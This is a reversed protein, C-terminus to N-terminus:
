ILDWNGLTQCDCDLNLFSRFRTQISDFQWMIATMTNYICIYTTGTATADIQERSATWHIEIWSQRRLFPGFYLVSLSSLLGSAEHYRERMIFSHAASLRGPTKRKLCFGSGRASFARVHSDGHNRLDVLLFSLNPHLASFKKIFFYWNRRYGLLGHLV